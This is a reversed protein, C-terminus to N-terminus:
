FDKLIHKIKTSKTLYKKLPFPKIKINYQKYISNYFETKHKVFFFMCMGEVM